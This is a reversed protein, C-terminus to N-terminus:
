DYIKRRKKNKIPMAKAPKLQNYMPMAQAPLLPPMDLSTVFDTQAKSYGEYCGKKYGEDRGIKLGKSYGRLFGKNYCGTCEPVRQHKSQGFQSPKIPLGNKNSTSRYPLSNVRLRFLVKKAKPCFGEYVGIGWRRKFRNFEPDKKVEDFTNYSKGIYVYKWIGGPFKVKKRPYIKVM